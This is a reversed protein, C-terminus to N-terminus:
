YLNHIYVHKLMDKGKMYFVKKEIFIYVYLSNMHDSINDIDGDMLLFSAEGTKGHTYLQCDLM